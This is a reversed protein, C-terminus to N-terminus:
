RWRNSLHSLRWVTLPHRHTQQLKKQKSCKDGSLIWHSIDRKMGVFYFREKVRELTKQVGQHGMFDHLLPLIVDMYSRYVVIKHVQYNEEPLRQRRLLRKSIYLNQFDTWLKWTTKSAGVMQTKETRKKQEVCCFVEKIARTRNTDANKRGIFNRLHSRM